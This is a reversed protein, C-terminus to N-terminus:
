WGDIISQADGYGRMLAEAETGFLQGDNREVCFPQAMMPASDRAINVVAVYGAPASLVAGFAVAGVPQADVEVTFGKYCYTRHM